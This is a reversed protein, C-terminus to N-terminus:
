DEMHNRLEIGSTKNIDNVQFSFSKDVLENLKYKLNNELPNTYKEENEILELSIFKDIIKSLNIQGTELNISVECDKLKSTSNVLLYMSILYNCNDMYYISYPLLGEIAITESDYRYINNLIIAFDNYLTNYTSNTLVATGSGRLASYTSFAIPYYFQDGKDSRLTLIVRNIAGAGTYESAAQSFDGSGSRRTQRSGNWGEWHVAFM